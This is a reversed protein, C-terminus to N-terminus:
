SLILTLHMKFNSSQVLSIFISQYLSLFLCSLKAFNVFSVVKSKMKQKSFTEFSEFTQSIFLQFVKILSSYFSLAILMWESSIWSYSSLSKFVKITWLKSNKAILVRPSILAQTQEKHKINSFKIFRTDFSKSKWLLKFDSAEYFEEQCKRSVPCLKWVFWVEKIPEILPTM